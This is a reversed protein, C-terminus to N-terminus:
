LEDRIARAIREVRKLYDLITAEQLDAVSTVHTPKFFYDRISREANATQESLSEIELKFGKAEAGASMKLEFKDKSDLGILVLSLSNRLDKSQAEAKLLAQRFAVVAQDRREPGPVGLESSASLANQVSAKLDTLKDHTKKVFHDVQKDVWTEYFKESPIGVGEGASYASFTGLAQRLLPNCRAAEYDIEEDIEPLAPQGAVFSAALLWVCALLILHVSPRGHVDSM